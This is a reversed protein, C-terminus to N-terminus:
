SFGHFITTKFVTVHLGHVRWSPIYPLPPTASCMRLGPVVFRLPKVCKWGGTMWYWITCKNLSKQHHHVKQVDKVHIMELAPVAVNLSPLRNRLQQFRLLLTGM